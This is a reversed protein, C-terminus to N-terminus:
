TWAAIIALVTWLFITAFDLALSGSRDRVFPLGVLATALLCATSATALLLPKVRVDVDMM